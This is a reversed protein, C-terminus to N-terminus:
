GGLLIDHMRGKRKLKKPSVQRVSYLQMHSIYLDGNMVISGAKKALICGEDPTIMTFSSEDNDFDFTSMAIKANKNKRKLKELREIAEDVSVFEYCEKNNKSM